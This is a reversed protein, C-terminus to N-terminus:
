EIIEVDALRIVMLSHEMAGYGFGGGEEGVGVGGGGAGTAPDPPDVVRASMSPKLKNEIPVRKLSTTIAVIRTADPTIAFDVLQLHNFAWQKMVTGSTSQALDAVIHLPSLMLRVYFILKCDMSSM